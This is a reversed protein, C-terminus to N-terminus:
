PRNKIKLLLEQADIRVNENWSKWSRFHALLHHCESCLSILNDWRLELEPSVNFPICHHIQLDYDRGCAECEPHEELYRNRVGRWESSRADGLARVSERSEWKRLLRILFQLTSEM